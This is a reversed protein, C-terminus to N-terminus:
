KQWGNERKGKGERRGGGGEWRRGVCAMEIEGGGGGGRGGLERGGGM